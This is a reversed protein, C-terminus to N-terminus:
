QVELTIVMEPENEINDIWGGQSYAAVRLALNDTPTVNFYAEVTSM